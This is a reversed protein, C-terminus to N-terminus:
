QLSCDTKVTIMTVVIPYNHKWQKQKIFVEGVIRHIYQLIFPHTCAHIISHTSVLRGLNFYGIINEGKLTGEIVAPQQTDAVHGAPFHRQVNQM